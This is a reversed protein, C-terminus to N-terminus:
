VLKAMIHLDVYGSELRVADRKTGELVFGFKKYLSLAHVNTVMVSLELRHAGAARAWDQLGNLLKFGWGKGAHSQRIALVLEANHSDRRLESRRGAGFGVISNLESDELALIQVFDSHQANKLRKEQEKLSVTREGPEFLLFETESDLVDWLDLFAQADLPVAPRINLQSM